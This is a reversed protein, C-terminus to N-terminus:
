NREKTNYLMQIYATYSTLCFYTESSLNTIKDLM